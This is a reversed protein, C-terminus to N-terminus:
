ARNDPKGIAAREHNDGMFWQGNAYPAQLASPVNTLTVPTAGGWLLLFWM